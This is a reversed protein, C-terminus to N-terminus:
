WFLSPPFVRINLVKSYKYKQKTAKRVHNKDATISVFGVNERKVNRLCTEHKQLNEPKAEFTAGGGGLPSKEKKSKRSTHAPTFSYVKVDDM